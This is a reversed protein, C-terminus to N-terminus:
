VFAVDGMLKVPFKVAAPLGPQTILDARSDSGRSAPCAPHAPLELTSFFTTALPPLVSLPMQKCGSHRVPEGLYYLGM